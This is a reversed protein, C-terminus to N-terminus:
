AAAPAASALYHQLATRTNVFLRDPGLQDAFGSARVYALVSLTSFMICPLYTQASAWVVVETRLPHTAFLATALSAALAVWQPIRQALNSFIRGLLTLTLLFLLFSNVLHFLIGTVAIAAIM